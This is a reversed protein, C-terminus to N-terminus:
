TINKKDAELIKTLVKYLSLAVGREPGFGTTAGLLCIGKWRRKKALGL